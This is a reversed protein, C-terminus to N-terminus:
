PEEGVAASNDFGFSVDFGNRDCVMASKLEDEEKDASATDDDILVLAKEQDETCLM